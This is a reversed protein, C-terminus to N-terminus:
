MRPEPYSDVRRRFQKPEDKFGEIVWYGVGTLGLLLFPPVAVLLLLRLRPWRWERVWEISRRGEQRLEDALRQPQPPDIQDFENSGAPDSVGAANPQEHVTSSLYISVPATVLLWLVSTAIWARFCGRNTNVDHDKWVAFENGVLCAIGTMM